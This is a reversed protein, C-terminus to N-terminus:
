LMGYAPLWLFMARFNPVGDATVVIDNDGPALEMIPVQLAGISLSPWVNGATPTDVFSAGDDTSLRVRQPGIACNIQLVHNATSGTGAYSFTQGTTENEIAPNVFGNAALSELRIILRGTRLQGSNKITFTTPSAVISFSAFIREDGSEGFENDPVAVPTYGLATLYGSSLPRYLTPQEVGWEITVTADAWNRPNPVWSIENPQVNENFVSFSSLTPTNFWLRGAGSLLKEMMVSKATLLDAECSRRIEFINSTTHVKAALPKRARGYLSIDGELRFPSVTSIKLPVAFPDLRNGKPIYWDKFKFAQLTM